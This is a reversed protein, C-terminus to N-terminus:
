RLDSISEDSGSRRSRIRDMVAALRTRLLFPIALIGAILAQIALSGMGPDLYAFVVLVELACGPTM